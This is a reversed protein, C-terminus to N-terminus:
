SCAGGLHSVPDIEDVEFAVVANDAAAHLKTGFGTRVVIVDGVLRFNVPLVIPLAGSTCGIRGLSRTALLRLCAERDLIELGNRDIEVSQTHRALLRHRLPSPGM